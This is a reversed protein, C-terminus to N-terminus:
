SAEYGFAALFQQVKPEYDALQSEYRQWRQTADSYIPRIVQHYSPNSVSVSKQANEYFRMVTDDWPVDVFEILQRSVGEQDAILDEYRVNLCELDSKQSFLLWMEMLAVYARVTEPMSLFPSTVASPQFAQMFCSLCVDMPHRVSFIFKADPFLRWLLPARITNFPFKDVVYADGARAPLHAELASFYADRAKQVTSDSLNALGGPYGEPSSAVVDMAAIAMPSEDVVIVQPHSDLIQHLLTTGSRLFGILFCPAKRGDEIKVPKLAALDTQEVFNHMAKIQDFYLDSSIGLQRSLEGFSRKAETFHDFAKAPDDLKDYLM